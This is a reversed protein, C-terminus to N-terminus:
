HTRQRRRALAGVLGLGGLTLAWTEPEPVPTTIAEVTLYKLTLFAGRQFTEGEQTGPSLLASAFSGSLTSLDVDGSLEATLEESRLGNRGTYARDFGLFQVADTGTGVQFGGHLQIVTDYDADPHASDGSHTELGLSFRYGTIRYGSEAQFHLPTGVKVSQQYYLGNPETAYPTVSGSATWQEYGWMPLFEIRLQNAQQNSIGYAEPGFGISGDDSHGGPSPQRFEISSNFGKGSYVRDFSVTASGLDHTEVAAHAASLSGALALAAAICFALRRHNPNKTM